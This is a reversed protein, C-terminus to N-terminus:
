REYAEEFKNLSTWKGDWAIKNAIVWKGKKISLHVEPFANLRERTTRSPQYGGASIFIQNDQTEAIKNGHLYMTTEGDEIRVETNSSKFRKNNIFANYADSTIKRM